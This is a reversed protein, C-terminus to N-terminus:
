LSAKKNKGLQQLYGGRWCGCWCRVVGPGGIHGAELGLRDGHDSHCVPFVVGWHRSCVDVADQAQVGAGDVACGCGEIPVVAAASVQEDVSAIVRVASTRVGYM